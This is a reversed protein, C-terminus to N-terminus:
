SVLGANALRYQKWEAVNQQWHYYETDILVGPESIRGRLTRWPSRLMGLAPPYPDYQADGPRAGIPNGPFQDTIFSHLALANENAAVAEALAKDLREIAALSAATLTRATEQRVDSLVLEAGAELLRAEREAEEHAIKARAAEAKAADRAAKAKDVAKADGRGALHLTEARDLAQEATALAAVADAAHRALNPLEAQVAALRQCHAVYKPHQRWDPLKKSDVATQAM